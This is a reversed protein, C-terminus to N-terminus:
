GDGLEQTLFLPCKITLNLWASKVVTLTVTFPRALSKISTPEGSYRLSNRSKKMACVIQSLPLFLTRISKNRPPCFISLAFTFINKAGGVDDNCGGGSNVGTLMCIGSFSRRHIEHWLRLGVDACIFLLM